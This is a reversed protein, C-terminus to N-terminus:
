SYLEEIQAKFHEEVVERKLKLTPTLMGNDISWEESLLTFNQPHEFGKFDKGVFVCGECSGTNILKDYDTQDSSAHSCIVFLIIYIYLVISKM